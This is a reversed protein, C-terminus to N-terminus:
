LGRPLPGKNDWPQEVHRVPVPPSDQPETYAPPTLKPGIIQPLFKEDATVSDTIVGVDLGNDSVKATDDLTFAACIGFTTLLIAAAALKSFKKSVSM